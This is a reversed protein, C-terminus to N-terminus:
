RGRDGRMVAAGHADGALPGLEPYASAHLWPWNEVGQALAESLLTAAEDPRGLAMAIRARYATHEGRLYPPVRAMLQQATRVDGAHAATLAAMGRYEMREPDDRRLSEFYTRADPFRGADYLASALWYRHARHAPDRALQNALWREARELLPRALEPRGHAILEDASVVLEAAQSWYADPPLQEGDRLLSDLAAVDGAAALARAHLVRAVRRDPFRRRMEATTRREAAHDGLLHEAHARATWYPSWGKLDARDPDLTVLMALAERPRNMALAVRALNYPANSGPGLTAARRIADLARQGEGRLRAELFDLLAAHFANLSVQGTRIQRVLSDVAQPAGDNWQAMAEHVLALTFSTDQAYARAFQGAAEDYRQQDYLVLGLDFFKYAEFTPPRSALDPVGLLRADSLVAVSGMLRQRVDAVLPEPTGRHGVVPPLATVLEGTRADVLELQFRLSDGVAYYAGTVVTGARLAGGFRRLASEGGRVREWAELATLWPVVEVRGTEQLGQTLWDGAFRGMTGLVTDGTENRLPTVAYPQALAARLVLTDRGLAAPTGGPKRTVSVVALFAAITVLAAGTMWRRAHGAPEPASDIPLAVAGLRSVITAATPPRERPNVALCEAILAALAPPVEPRLRRIREPLDTTRVGLPPLTGLLVEHALNGWAFVDVRQDVGADGLVQEPAMYGVTGIAHGSDTLREDHPLAALLRAVGFDMLYSHGQACLINEPKLDRHVVGQGHAHALADAVDHLLPLAQPMPLPGERGLVDRLPEGQVRPMVYFLLGDAEGSDILPLIHPHTLRAAIRVERLFRESGTALAVDPRLVKLVVERGHKLEHALYVQAHGGRGLEGRLTYRGGLAQALRPAVDGALVEIAPRDLVGRHDHAALLSSVEEYMATDGACETGLWRDREAEPVDLARDFLDAARSWREADTSRDSV